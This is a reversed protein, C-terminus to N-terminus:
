ADAEDVAVDEIQAVTVTVKQRFRLHAYLPHNALRGELIGDPRVRQVHVWMHEKTPKGQRHAAFARKVYRGVFSAPDMTAYTVDATPACDPCLFLINAAGEDHTHSHDAM